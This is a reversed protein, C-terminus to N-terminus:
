TPLARCLAQLGCGDCDVPRRSFDGSSLDRLRAGLADRLLPVDDTRYVDVVPEVPAELFLFAVRVERAGALLCALAYLWGQLHYRGAAEAPRRGDLHTTKYDVVTWTSGSEIVLDLYGSVVVGDQEFLFPREKSLVGSVTADALDSEWFGSVLGAARQVHEAELEMGERAALRTVLRHVSGPDPRGALDSEQLALHVIMGVARAAEGGGGESGARPSREAGVQVGAFMEPELGLVRKLYYSRPCREYHELSSFSV